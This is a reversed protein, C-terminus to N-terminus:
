NLDLQVLDQGQYDPIEVNRGNPGKVWVSLRPVERAGPSAFFDNTDRIYGIAQHLAQVHPAAICVYLDTSTIGFSHRCGIAQGELALSYPFFGNIEGIPWSCLAFHTPFTKRLILREDIEGNVLFVSTQMSDLLETFISFVKDVEMETM